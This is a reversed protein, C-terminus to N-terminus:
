RRRCRGFDDVTLSTGFPVTVAAVTTTTTTGAVRRKAGRPSAGGTCLEGGLAVLVVVKSRDVPITHAPRVM